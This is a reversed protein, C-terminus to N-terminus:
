LFTKDSGTYEKVEGPVALGRLQGNGYGFLKKHLRYIMKM